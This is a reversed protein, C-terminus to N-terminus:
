TNLANSKEPRNLFIRAIGGEIRTEVM